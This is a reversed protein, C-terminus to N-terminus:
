RNTIRLPRKPDTILWQPLNEDLTLSVIGDFERFVLKWFGDGANEPAVQLFSAEEEGTDLNGVRNGGPAYLDAVAGGRRQGMILHFGESGPPVYFYLPLEGETLGGDLQIGSSPIHYGATAGEIRFLGSADRNPIYLYYHSGAKGPFRITHGESVAGAAIQTGEADTLIYHIFEARKNYKETHISVEGTTTVHLLIRTHRNVPVLSVGQRGAGQLAEMKQVRVPEPDFNV